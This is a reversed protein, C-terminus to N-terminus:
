SGTKSKVMFGTERLQLMTVKWESLMKGGKGAAAVDKGAAAVGSCKASKEIM